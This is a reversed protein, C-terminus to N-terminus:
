DKEFINLLPAHASTGEGWGEGVPTLFGWYNKVSLSSPQKLFIFSNCRHGPGATFRRPTETLG